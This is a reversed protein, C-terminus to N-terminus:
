ESGKVCVECGRRESIVGPEGCLRQGTGQDASCCQRGDVPGVGALTLSLTPTLIPIRAPCPLRITLTM